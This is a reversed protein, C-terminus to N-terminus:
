ASYTCFLLETDTQLRTSPFVAYMVSLSIDSPWLFFPSRYNTVNYHAHLSNQKIFYSLCLCVNYITVMDLIHASKSTSFVITVSWLSPSVTVTLVSACNPAPVVGDPLDHNQLYLSRLEIGLVWQFILWTSHHPVPLGLAPSAPVPQGVKSLGCAGSETLSGTEFVLRLVGSFSVQCQSRTGVDLRPHVCATLPASDRM